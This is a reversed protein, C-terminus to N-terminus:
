KYLLLGTYYFSVLCFFSVSPWGDCGKNGCRTWADVKTVDGARLFVARVVVELVDGAMESWWGLPHVSYWRVRSLLSRRKSAMCVGTVIHLCCSLLWDCWGQHVAAVKWLSRGEEGQASSASNIGSREAGDISPQSNHYRRINSHWSSEKTLYM